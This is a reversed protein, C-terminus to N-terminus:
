LGVFTGWEWPHLGQNGCVPCGGSSSRVMYAVMFVLSGIALKNATFRTLLNYIKKVVDRRLV